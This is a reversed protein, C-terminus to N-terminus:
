LNAILAWSTPYIVAELYVNICEYLLCTHTGLQSRLGGCGNGGPDYWDCFNCIFCVPNLSRRRGTSILQHSAPHTDVAGPSRPCTQQPLGYRMERSKHLETCGRTLEHERSAWASGTQFVTKIPNNFTNKDTRLTHPKACKLCLYFM